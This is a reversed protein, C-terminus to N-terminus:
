MPICTISPSYAIACIGIIHDHFRETIANSERIRFVTKIATLYIVELPPGEVGHIPIMNKSTKRFRDGDDNCSVEYNPGPCTISRDRDDKRIRM